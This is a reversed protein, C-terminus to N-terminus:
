QQRQTQNKRLLCGRRLLWDLARLGSSESVTSGWRSPFAAGSNVTLVRSPFATESTSSRPLGTKTFEQAVQHALQLSSIGQNASRRSCYAFCPKSTNSDEPEGTRREDISHPV